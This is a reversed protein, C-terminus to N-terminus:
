KGTEMRHNYPLFYQTTSFEGVQANNEINSKPLESKRSSLNANTDKLTTPTAAGGLKSNISRSSSSVAENHNNSYFNLNKPKVLEVGSNLESMSNSDTDTAHRRQIEKPEETPGEYSHKNSKLGTNNPESIVSKNNLEDGHLNNNMIMLGNSEKKDMDTELDGTPSPGGNQFDHV